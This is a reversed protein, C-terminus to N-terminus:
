QSESVLEDLSINLAVALKKLTDASGNKTGKEIQAIYGQAIGSAKGLKEQTIGRYERWVALPNDTNILKEVLEQPYTEEEPNVSNLAKLDEADEALAILRELDVTPIVALKGDELYQINM